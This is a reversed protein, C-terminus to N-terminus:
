ELCKVGASKYTERRESPITIDSGSVSSFNVLAQNWLVTVGTQQRCSPNPKILRVLLLYQNIVFLYVWLKSLHFGSHEDFYLLM